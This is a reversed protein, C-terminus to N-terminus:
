KFRITDICTICEEPFTPDKTSFGLGLIWGDVDITYQLTRVYHDPDDPPNYNFIARLARHGQITIYSFEELYFYINMGNTLYEQYSDFDFGAVEEEFSGGTDTTYSFSLKHDRGEPYGSYIATNSASTTLLELYPPWYATIYEDEFYGDEGLVYLAPDATWMWEPVETPDANPDETESADATPASTPETTPSVNHGGKGCGAFAFAAFVVALALAISRYLKSM